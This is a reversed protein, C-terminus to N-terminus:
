KERSETSSSDHVKQVYASKKYYESVPPQCPPPLHPANPPSPPTTSGHPKSKPIYPIGKDQIKAMHTDNIGDESKAQGQMNKFTLNADLLTTKVRVLNPSPPLIQSGTPKSTSTLPVEEDQYLVTPIEINKDRSKAQGQMNKFALNADLLTQHISDSKNQSQLLIRSAQLNERALKQLDVLASPIDKHNAEFCLRKYPSPQPTLIDRESPPSTSMPPTPSLLADVIDELQKLLTRLEQSVDKACEWTETLQTNTLNLQQVTETRQLAKAAQHHRQDKIHTEFTDMISGLRSQLTTTFELHKEV